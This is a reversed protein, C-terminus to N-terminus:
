SFSVSGINVVVLFRTDSFARVLLADGTGFTATNNTGDWTVGSPTDIVVSYDASANYIMLEQGPVLKEYGFLLAISAGVPEIRINGSRPTILRDDSTINIQHHVIESPVQQKVNLLSVENELIAM